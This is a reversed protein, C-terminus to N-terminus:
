ELAEVARYSWCFPMTYRPAREVDVLLSPMTSNLGSVM